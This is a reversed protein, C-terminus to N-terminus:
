RMGGGSLIYPERTAPRDVRISVNSAPIAEKEGPRRVWVVVTYIGPGDTFPIRFSFESGPDVAYDHRREPLSYSDIMNATIPSIPQPLPEYHVSIADALYGHEARGAAVIKENLTAARPLTHTWAFYKRVFEQTLRFEGKEWALGIGVHTAHPDLITKRHGDHPAREAMMAEESRRIMEYLARDNFRYTASWAAANESVADNGGAFSYRMYPSQGDTTFHGTTGNRIQARCYEDALSSTWGDLEVPKLGHHKRDSNILRLFEQRLTFRTEYIPSEGQALTSALVLLIALAARKMRKHNYHNRPQATVRNRPRSVGYGRLGTVRM